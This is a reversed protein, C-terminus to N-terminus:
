YAMADVGHTSITLQASPPCVLLVIISVSSYRVGHMSRPQMEHTCSRALSYSKCPQVDYRREQRQQQM